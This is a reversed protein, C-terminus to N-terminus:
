PTGVCAMDDYCVEKLPVGAAILTNMTPCLCELNKSVERCCETRAQHLRETADKNDGCSPSTAPYAAPEGQKPETTPTPYTPQNNGYDPAATAVALTALLFLFRKSAM